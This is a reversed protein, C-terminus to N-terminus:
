EASVPGYIAKSGSAKGWFQNGFDYHWWEDPYNTFGANIMAQFLLRRNERAILDQATKISAIDEFFRTGARASFDDFGTGMWLESGNQEVLTIDISGGSYHPSPRDTASSPLSVFVKCREVLEEESADPHAVRLEGLFKNFIELQLELPRWADYVKIGIKKPLYDLARQLKTFVGTRIYQSESAAQFGLKAYEGSVSIRELNHATNILILPDGCEDIEVNQWGQISPLEPIEKSNAVWYAGEKSPHINDKHRM